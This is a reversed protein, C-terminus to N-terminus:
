GSGLNRLLRFAMGALLLVGVVLAGWLVWKKFERNEALHSFFRGPEAFLSPAVPAAGSVEGVSAARAQTLPHEDRRPLVTSLALAGPKAKGNGYALLFPGDGRAVFVVEHPVWAV